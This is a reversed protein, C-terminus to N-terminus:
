EVKDLYIYYILGWVWKRLMAVNKEFTLVKNGFM